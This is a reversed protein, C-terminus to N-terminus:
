KAANFVIYKVKKTHVTCLIVYFLLLGASIVFVAVEGSTQEQFRFRLVCLAIFNLGFIITCVILAIPMKWRKGRTLPRSFIAMRVNYTASCMWLLISGSTLVGLAENALERVVLVDLLAFFYCTFSLALQSKSRQYNKYYLSISVISMIGGAYIVSGWQTAESSIACLPGELRATKQCQVITSVVLLICWSLSMAVITPWLFSANEAKFSAKEDSLEEYYTLSDETM